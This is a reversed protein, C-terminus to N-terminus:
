KKEPAAIISIAVPQASVETEPLTCGVSLAAAKLYERYEGARDFSGEPPQYTEEIQWNGPFNFDTRVQAPDPIYVDHPPLWIWRQGIESLLKGRPWVGVGDIVEIFEEYGTAGPPAIVKTALYGQAPITRGQEPKPFCVTKDSLNTFETKIFVPEHLSYTEKGLIIRLKLIPAPSSPTGPATQSRAGISCMGLALLVILIRSRM